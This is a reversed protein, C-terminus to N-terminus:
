YTELTLHFIVLIQATTELNGMKGSARSKTGMGKESGPENCKMCLNCFWQWETGEKKGTMESVGM